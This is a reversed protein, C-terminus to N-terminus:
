GPNPKFVRVSLGIDAFRFAFGDWYIIDGPNETKMMRMMEMIVM